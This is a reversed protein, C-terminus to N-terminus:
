FEYKFATNISYDTTSANGTPKNDYSFYFSLDWYLDIIIEWSLVIDYNM